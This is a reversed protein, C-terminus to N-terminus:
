SEEGTKRQSVAWRAADGPRHLSPRSLQGAPARARPDPRRPLGPLPRDLPRPDADRQRDCEADRYVRWAGISTAVPEEVEARKARPRRRGPASARGQGRGRRPRARGARLLDSSAPWGRRAPRAAPANPWSRPGARPRSTSSCPRAARARDPLSLRDDSSGTAQAHGHRARGGGDRAAAASMPPRASRDPQDGGARADAVPVRRGQRAPGAGDAGRLGPGGGGADPERGATRLRALGAASCSASRGGRAADRGCRSNWRLRKLRRDLGEAAGQRGGVLDKIIGRM